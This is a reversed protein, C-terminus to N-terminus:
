FHGQRKLTPNNYKWFENVQPRTEKPDFEEAANKFNYGKALGRPEEQKREMPKYTRQGGIKKYIQDTGSKRIITDEESIQEDPDIRAFQEGNLEIIDENVNSQGNKQKDENAM